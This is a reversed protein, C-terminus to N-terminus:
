GSVKRRAVLVGNGLPVIVSDYDPDAAVARNFRDMARRDPHDVDDIWWSGSGFANDALLFGGPAILPRVLEFYRPYEKKDADLFVVDASGPALERGLRRLEDLAEGVRLEVRDSVGARRLQSRAFAAHAPEREITVLRGGPALGRAIWIASYGALTGAEVALAGRTAATLMMLLRGVEASVAIDPLGAAIAEAMLRALHEDQGGFVERTYECTLRWRRPSMDMM